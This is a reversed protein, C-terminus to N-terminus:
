KFANRIQEILGEAEQMLGMAASVDIRMTAPGYNRLVELASIKGDNVLSTVLAGRLAFIAGEEQGDYQLYPPYIITAARGLVRKGIFGYALSTARATDIGLAKLNVELTLYTRLRDASIGGFQEIQRIAANFGDSTPKGAAFAELDAITATYGIPGYRVQVTDLNAAARPAAIALTAAAGLAALSLRASFRGCWPFLRAMTVM